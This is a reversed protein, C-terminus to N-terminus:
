PEQPLLWGWLNGEPAKESHLQIYLRRQKLDEVQNTKLELTGAITGSTGATVTLELVAPGRIGLPGRHVRAVTAPSILGDFTGSVVLKTGTLVATASGSGAIKPATVFDIPVTSLRAKYRAGSQAPAPVSVVWCVLVLGTLIGTTAPSTVRTM